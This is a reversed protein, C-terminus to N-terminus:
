YNWPKAGIALAARKADARTAFYYQAVVSEGNLAPTAHIVLEFKAGTHKAATFISSYMNIM